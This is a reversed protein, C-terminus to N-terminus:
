PISRFRTSILGWELFLLLTALLMLGPTLNVSLNARESDASIDRFAELLKENDVAHYYTGATKNSIKKLNKENYVTSINYYEPIYGIPEESDIGTGITHIIVHNDQAYAISKDISDELFTGITSSGDTIMIITKGKDSAALLNTSTIIAGPIDTGGSHVIELGEIARKVEVKSKIMVQNIFTVGAFTVVGIEADSELIDVFQTAYLKAAELRTPVLDEASMSASTDIALVFNANNSDGEYWFTAGSVGMVVLLLILIRTILVTLNKTILKKGTIRKIAEFNAFKMAKRKSHKLLYFHTAAMLPISLIFWLNTPNTFTIEAM